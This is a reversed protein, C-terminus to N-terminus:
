LTMLYLLGWLIWMPPPESPPPEKTRGADQALQRALNDIDPARAPDPIQGYNLRNGGIPEVPDPVQPNVYRIGVQSPGLGTVDVVYGSRPTLQGEVSQYITAQPGVDWTTVGDSIIIHGIAKPNQWLGGSPSGRQILTFGHRRPDSSYIRKPKAQGIEPPQYEAQFGIPGLQLDGVVSPPQIGKPGITIPGYDLDLGVDIPM